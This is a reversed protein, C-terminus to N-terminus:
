SEEGESSVPHTPVSENNADDASAPEDLAIKALEAHLWPTLVNATLVGLVRLLETLLFGLSEVLERTQLTHARERLADLSIGDAEVHIASLAPFREKSVFVVRTAIAILTVEGLSDQAERWIADLAREFLGLLRDPPFTDSHPVVRKLWHDVSVADANAEHM